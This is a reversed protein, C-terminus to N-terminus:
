STYKQQKSKKKNRLFKTPSSNSSSAQCKCLLREVTRAV